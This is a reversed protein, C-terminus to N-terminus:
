AGPDWLLFRMSGLECLDFIVEQDHKNGLVARTVPLNDCGLHLVSGWPRAAVAPLM